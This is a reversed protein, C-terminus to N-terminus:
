AQEKLNKGCGGCFVANDPNMMGCVPCRTGAPAEPADPIIEPLKNGCKGCFMASEPNDFGCQSCKKM